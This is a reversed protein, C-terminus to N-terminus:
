NPDEEEGFWVVAYDGYIGIGIAKWPHTKWIGKNVIVTNHGRSRKWSSLAGTAGAGASSWYAIEFGNGTYNTLEKPKDWMCKAKAHDSTYCCPTWEGKNSWSHMNCNGSDPKNDHLDKAHIKAVQTLAVSIPINPLGQEARYEMIITYLKTEEQTLEQTFATTIAFFSLLLLAFFRM